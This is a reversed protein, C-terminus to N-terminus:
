TRNLGKKCANTIALQATSFNITPHAYVWSAIDLLLYMDEADQYLSNPAPRHMIYLLKEKVQMESEGADRMGVIAEADNGAIVCEAPTWQHAISIGPLVAMVVALIVHRM